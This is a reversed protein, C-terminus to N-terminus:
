LVIRKADDKTTSKAFSSALRYPPRYGRAVTYALGAFSNLKDLKFSSLSVHMQSTDDAETTNGIIGSSSVRCKNKARGRIQSYRTSLTLFMHWHPAAWGFTMKLATSIHIGLGM